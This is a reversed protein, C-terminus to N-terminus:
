LSRCIEWILSVINSEFSRILIAGWWLQNIYIVRTNFIKVLWCCVDLQPFTCSQNWCDNAFLLAHLLFCVVISVFFCNLFFFFFFSFCTCVDGSALNFYNSINDYIYRVELHRSFSCPCMLVFKLNLIKKEHCLLLYNLFTWISM